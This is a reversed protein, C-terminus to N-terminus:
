PATSRPQVLSVADAPCSTAVAPAALAWEGEPTPTVWVESGASIVRREAACERLLVAAWPPAEPLWRGLAFAAISLVAAAVVAWTPTYPRFALWLATGWALILAGVVLVPAARPRLGFFGPDRFPSTGADRRARALNDELWPDAELELAARRYWLIAEPIRELKHATVGLNYLLTADPGAIELQAVYVDLAAQLHGQRHLRNGEEIEASSVVTSTDVVTLMWLVLLELGPM